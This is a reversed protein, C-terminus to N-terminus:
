TKEQCVSNGVHQALAIAVNQLYERLYPIFAKETKGEVILAIKMLAGGDPGDAM